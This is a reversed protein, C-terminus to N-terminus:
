PGCHLIMPQDFLPHIRHLKNVFDVTTDKWCDGSQYGMLDPIREPQHRSVVSVYTSFCQLWELISLSCKSHKSRHDDRQRHIGMRKQLLDLM